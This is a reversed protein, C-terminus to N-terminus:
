TVNGCRIVRKRRARDKADDKIVCAMKMDDKVADMFKRKPRERKRRGTPDLDLMRNRMHEKGKRKM